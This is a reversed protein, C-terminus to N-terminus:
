PFFASGTLGTNEPFGSMLNMNQVAQGSAGKGINDIVSVIIVRGTREDKGIGIDCCNSGRVHRTAPMTGPPCIRVFYEDNYTDEYLKQLENLSTDKKLSAYSTSLIGRSIPLLHPTFSVTIGKEKERSKGDGALISLEQEIEPIHRHAGGVKYAMFSDSVECFSTATSAKRGAGSTGSKSDIIITAPEILNNSLLPALALIVSTPYCGPNATLSGGAIQNRYLEPLGYVSKELLDPCSHAQYWEKYVSADRLRFDASLDVVKKGAEILSPVIDMATKHPVATFFFDAKNVINEHEPSVCKLDVRERLNPFVTSLPQGAYQRSTVLTLESLPHDALIRALEVGTYGSAGIIGVRLKTMKTTQKTKINKTEPRQLASWHLIM